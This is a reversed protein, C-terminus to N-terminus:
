LNGTNRGIVKISTTTDTYYEYFAQVQIMRQITAGASLGSAKVNCVISNSQGKWLPVAVKAYKSFDKCEDSLTMKDSTAGFDISILVNNKSEEGSVAAKCADSTVDSTPSACAVGGGINTITIELPFEVTQGDEWFRIPGKTQIDVMIPTNTQSKTEAPLKGSTDQITRLESSSGFTILKVVGSNYSYFVRATPTYTITFGKPIPPAKYTWTCIHSGGSTGRLTDPALLNFGKKDTYQCDQENPLKELRGGTSTGCQTL